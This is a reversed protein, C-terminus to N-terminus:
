RAIMPEGRAPRPTRMREVIAFILPAGIIWVPLLVSLKEM